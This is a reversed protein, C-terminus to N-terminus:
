LQAAANSERCRRQRSRSDSKRRADVIAVLFM